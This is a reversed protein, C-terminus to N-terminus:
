HRGLSYRSYCDDYGYCTYYGYHDRPSPYADVDRLNSPAFNEYSKLQMTLSRLKRLKM